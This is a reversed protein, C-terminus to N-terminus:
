YALKQKKKAEELEGSLAVGKEVGLNFGMQFGNDYGKRVGLFYSETQVLEKYAKEKVGADFGKACKEMLMRAKSKYGMEFCAHCHKKVAQDTGDCYGLDYACDKEMTEKWPELAGPLHQPEPEPQM